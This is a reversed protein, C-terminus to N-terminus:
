GRFDCEACHSRCLMGSQTEHARHRSYCRRGRRAYPHRCSNKDLLAHHTAVRRGRRAEGGSGDRRPVTATNWWTDCSSTPHRSPRRPTRGVFLRHRVARSPATTVRSPPSTPRTREIVVRCVSVRHGHTRVPVRCRDVRERDGEFPAGRICVRSNTSPPVASSRWSAAFTRVGEHCAPVARLIRCRAARARVPVPRRNRRHRGLARQAM